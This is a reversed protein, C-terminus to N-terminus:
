CRASAARSGRRPRTAGGATPSFAAAEGHRRAHAVHRVHLPSNIRFETDIGAMGNQKTGIPVDHWASFNEIHMWAPWGTTYVCEQGSRRSSRRRPTSSRDLDQPAKEPDLGAKKFADKNVYFVVTSSNFPYSLM